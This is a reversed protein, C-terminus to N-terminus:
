SDRPSPSTYLLCDKADDLDEDYSFQDELHDRVDQDDWSPKSQKYYERLLASDDYDSLDENLNVYDELTGGTEEMFSVLKEVNEPLKVQPVEEQQPAPAAAELQKDLGTAYTESTENVEQTKTENIIEIPSDIEESAEPAEASVDEKTEADDEKKPPESLNVVFDGAENTPTGKPEEAAAEAKVEDVQEIVQEKQEEAAPQVEVGDVSKVKFNEM